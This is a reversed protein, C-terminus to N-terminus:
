VGTSGFGRHEITPDSFEEVVDWTCKIIPMFVLQAIRDGAKLNIIDELNWETEQWDGEPSCKDITKYESNRNWASILLESKYDEDILGVTNALILGRDGGLGSRPIIVGAVGTEQICEKNGVLALGKRTSGIWIALGTPIMKREGPYLTIDETCRLDLGASGPTQYSPIGNYRPKGFENLYFKKNLIKMEIKM